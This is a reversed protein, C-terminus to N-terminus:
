TSKADVEPPRPSQHYVINRTQTSEPELFFVGFADTVHMDCQLTRILGGKQIKKTFHQREDFYCMNTYICM